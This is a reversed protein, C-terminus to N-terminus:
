LRYPEPEVPDVDVINKTPASSEVVKALPVPPYVPKPTDPTTPDTAAISVASAANASDVKAKLADIQCVIEEITKDDKDPPQLAAVKTSIAALEDSVSTNLSAFSAQLHNIKEPM